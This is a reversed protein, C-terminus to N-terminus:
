AFAQQYTLCMNYPLGSNNAGPTFNINIYSPDNSFIINQTSVNCEVCGQGNNGANKIICPTVTSMGYMLVDGFSSIDLSYTSGALSSTDFSFNPIFITCIGPQSGFTLRVFVCSINGVLTTDYYVPISHTVTYLGPVNGDNSIIQGSINLNEFYATYDNPSLINQISM